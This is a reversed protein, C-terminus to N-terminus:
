SGTSGNLEQQIARKDDLIFERKGWSAISRISEVSMVPKVM